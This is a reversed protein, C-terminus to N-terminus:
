WYVVSASVTGLCDWGVEYGPCDFISVPLYAQGALVAVEKDAPCPSFYPSGTDDIYVLGRDTTNFANIAHGTAQGEFDLTVLAARIGAAEANNHLMEAFDVCVFTAEDYRLQDTTDQELFLKLAEWSPDAADPNNRLEIYEGDAGVVRTNPTPEVFEDITEGMPGVWYPVASEFRGEASYQPGEEPYTVTWIGYYYRTGYDLGQHMFRTDSGEYVVTGDDPSAPSADTRCVVRVAEGDAPQDWLLQVQLGGTLARFSPPPRLESTQLLEFALVGGVLCLALVVLVATTFVSSATRRAPAPEAVPAPHYGGYLPNAVGCRPCSSAWEVKAGCNHCFTWAM